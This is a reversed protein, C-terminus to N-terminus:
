LVCVKEWIQRLSLSPCIFVFISNLFFNYLNISGWKKREEKIKELEVIDIQNKPRFAAKKNALLQNIHLYPVLVGDLDAISALQLCEDFSYEEVGKMETMIDLVVGSNTESIYYENKKISKALQFIIQSNCCPKKYWYKLLSCKMFSQM